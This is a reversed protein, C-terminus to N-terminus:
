KQNKNGELGQSLSVMSTNSKRKSRLSKRTPMPLLSMRNQIRMVNNKKKKTKKGEEMEKTDRGGM